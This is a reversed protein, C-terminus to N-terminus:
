RIANQCTISGVPFNTDLKTLNKDIIAPIKLSRLVKFLIKLLGSFAPVGGQGKFIFRCILRPFVLERAEGSPEVHGIFKGHPILPLRFPDHSLSAM